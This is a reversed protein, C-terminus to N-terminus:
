SETEAVDLKFSFETGQGSNSSVELKSHHLEIIDKSIALGLGVGGQNRTSSGNLQTFSSFVKNQQEKPIGIGEDLVSVRVKDQQKILIVRITGMDSFKIANNILNHLVQRIRNEDAYVNLTKEQLVSRLSLGKDLAQPAFLLVVDDVMKCLDFLQCNITLRGSQLQSFDLLDEVLSRLQNGSNHIARINEEVEDDTYLDPENVLMESLGIIGNLPTRLEHSTNTLFEDKLINLERLEDAVEKEKRAIEREYVLKDRQKKVIYFILSLVLLSYILYAWYSLWPPAPIHFSLTKPTTNCTNEKNCSTVQLEYTGPALNLLTIDRNNGIDLWDQDIGQGRGILRYAYTNMQPSLFDNAGIKFSLSNSRYDLAELHNDRRILRKLGDSTFLFAAQIQTQPVRKNLSFSNGDVATVGNIGGFFLVGQNNRFVAQHNFENSQLGDLRTFHHFRKTESSWRTLGKNGAIWVNNASDGIIGYFDNQFLQETADFWRWEDSDLKHRAVGDSETAMWLHGDPTVWLATVGTVAYGDDTVPKIIKISEKLADFEYVLPSKESAFWYRNDYPGTLEFRRYIEAPSEIQYRFIKKDANQFTFYNDFGILMKHQQHILMANVGRQAADRWDKEVVLEMGDAGIWRLGDFSGIWVTSDASEAITTVSLPTKKSEVTYKFNSRLDGLVDSAQETKTIVSYGADNSGVWLTGNEQQYIASTYLSSLPLSYASDGGIRYFRSNELQTYSLGNAAGVWLLNQKDLFLVYLNNSSLSGQHGNRRKFQQSSFDTLSVRFLGEGRSAVWLFNDDTQLIALVNTPQKELHKLRPIAKAETQYLEAEFLGGGRFAVYVGGQRKATVLVRDNIDGTLQRGLEHSKVERSQPQYSYLKGDSTGIWIIGNADVVSKFSNKVHKLETVPSVQPHKTKFGKLRLIQSVDFLYLQGQADFQATLVRLREEPVFREEFQHTEPNFIFVGGGRSVAVVNHHSDILLAVIQLQPKRMSSPAFSITEFENGNFREVGVATVVWIFEHHDQIIVEPSSLSLGDDVTFTKFYPSWIDELFSNLALARPTFIFVLLFAICVGLQQIHYTMARTNRKECNIAITKELM